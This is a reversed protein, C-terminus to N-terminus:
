SMDKACRYMDWNSRAAWYELEEPDIVIQGVIQLIRGNHAADDARPFQRNIWADFFAMYEAFTIM